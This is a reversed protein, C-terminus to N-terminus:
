KRRKTYCIMKFSNKSSYLWELGMGKGEKWASREKEPGYKGGQGSTTRTPARGFANYSVEIKLFAEPAM